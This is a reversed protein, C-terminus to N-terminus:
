HLHSTETFIFLPIEPNSCRITQHDHFVPPCNAQGPILSQGVLVDTGDESIAFIEEPEPGLSPRELEHARRKPAVVIGRSQATVVDDADKQVSLPVAPKASIVPRRHELGSSPGCGESEVVSQRVKGHM